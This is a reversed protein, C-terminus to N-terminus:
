VGPQGRAEKGGTAGALCALLSPPIASARKPRVVFNYLGLGWLSALVLAARNPSDKGGVLEALMSQLRRTQRVVIPRLGPDDDTEVIVGVFMRMHAQDAIADAVRQLMAGPSEAASSAAAQQLGGVIGDIFRVAVAEVLDHRRPFYYTLHSQRVRARRAVQVQSLAQIGGERLIGVAANLVRERIGGTEDPATRPKRTM